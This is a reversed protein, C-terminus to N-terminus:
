PKDSCDISASWTAPRQVHCCEILRVLLLLSTQQECLDVRRRNVVSSFTYNFGDLMLFMANFYCPQLM